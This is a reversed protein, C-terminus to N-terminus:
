VLIVPFEVKLEKTEGPEWGTGTYWTFVATGQYEGAPFWAIDQKSLEQQYDGLPTGPLFRMAQTYTEGAKLTAFKFDDTMIKGWTDMDIFQVNGKGRISVPIEQHMNPTGSGAGYTIDKKTTNTVSVTLTFPEDTLKQQYGTEVRLVLGDQTAERTM